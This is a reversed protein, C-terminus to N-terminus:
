ILPRERWRTSPFRKPKTATHGFSLPAPPHITNIDIIIRLLHIYFIFPIYFFFVIIGPYQKSFVNAHVIAAAM